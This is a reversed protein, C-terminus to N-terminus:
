IMNQKLFDLVNLGAIRETTKDGYRATLRELVRDHISSKEDLGQPYRGSTGDIDFGFGINQDCGFLELAYDIHRIVDDIEATANDNLFQPYLNIGIVGGRSAIRRAMDRTLNRKSSCIERFNSHTAIHPFPSEDFVEYFARDSLHSTDIIIGLEACRAVMKRGEDTLGVDDKEFAGASLENTDWAMGLVRLGGRALIDLEPSDAFLGGGGEITFMGANKSTEEASFLDRGSVVNLLGLRECEALYINYYHMLRKRRMSPPDNKKESFYAFFQLQPHAKSTNYLNVLGCEESVCSLSDCHMDAIYM